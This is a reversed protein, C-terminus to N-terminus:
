KTKTDLRKIYNKNGSYRKGSTLFGNWHKFFDREEETLLGNLQKVCSKM